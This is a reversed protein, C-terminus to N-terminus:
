ALRKSEPPASRELRQQLDADISLALRQAAAADEPSGAEVTVQWSPTGNNRSVEVRAIFRPRRIM